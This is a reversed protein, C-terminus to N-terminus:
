RFALGVALASRDGMSLGVRLLVRRAEDFALDLGVDAAPRVEFENDPAEDGFQYDFGVGVGVWPALTVAGESWVAGAVLGIPLSIVGWEGYSGGIGTTWALRVGSAEDPKLPIRVDIGGFGSVGGDDDDQEAAGFRLRASAPLGAPAWTVLGGRGDGRLSSPQFFFAGFSPEELVGTLRPSDPLVQAAARASSAGILALSLGAALALTRTRSFSTVDLDESDTPHTYARATM